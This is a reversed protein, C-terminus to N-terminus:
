LYLFILTILVTSSFLVYITSNCPSMTGEEGIWSQTITSFIAVVLMMVIWFEINYGALLMLFSVISAIHIFSIVILVINSDEFEENAFYQIIRIIFNIVLLTGLVLLINM